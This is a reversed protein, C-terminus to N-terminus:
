HNNLLNKINLIYNINGKTVTKRHARKPIHSERENNCNLEETKLIRKKLKDTESQHHTTRLNELNKTHGEADRHFTATPQDVRKGQEGPQHPGKVLKIRRQSRKEKETLKSDFTGHHISTSVEKKDLKGKRKERPNGSCKTREERATYRNLM